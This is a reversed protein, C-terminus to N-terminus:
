AETRLLRSTAPASAGKAMLTEAGSDAMMSSVRDAVGKLAEVVHYEAPELRHISMKASSKPSPFRRMLGLMAGVHRPQAYVSVGGTAMMTEM